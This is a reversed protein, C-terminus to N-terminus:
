IEITKHLVDYYNRRKKLTKEDTQQFFPTIKALEFYFWTKRQFNFKKLYAFKM